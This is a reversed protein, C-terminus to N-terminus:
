ETICIDCTPECKADKSYTHFTLPNFFVRRGITQCFDFKGLIFFLIEKFALSSLININFSCSPHVLFESFMNEVYEYGQEEGYEKKLTENFSNECSTISPIYIPGICLLEYSYYISIYPIQHKFCVRNLRLKFSPIPDCANIIFDPHVSKVISEIEHEESYAGNIININISFNNKIKRKLAEIKLNAVDKKDYTMTRFVDSMEIKDFDIISINNFGFQALQYILPSGAGGAGYM